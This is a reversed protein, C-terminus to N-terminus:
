VEVDAEFRAARRKPLLRSAMDYRPCFEGLARTRVRALPIV